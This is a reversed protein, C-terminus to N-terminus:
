ATADAEPAFYLVRQCSECQIIRSNSRVENFLQPRLRVQCAACRGDIAQAVAVGNRREAVTEFLALLTPALTAVLRAREHDIAALRTELTQRESELRGREAKVTAEETRQSDAAREVDAKLDDGELMRELIGDETRRRNDDATAIEAQMATYERNTKVQMLQERFRELRTEVAALEKELELRRKQVDDQKQRAQDVASGAAALREGLAEVCAPLAAIRTRAVAAENDLRQLRILQDLEALM